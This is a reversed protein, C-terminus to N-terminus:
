LKAPARYRSRPLAVLPPADAHPKNSQPDAGSGMIAAVSRNRLIQNPTLSIGANHARAVIQFVQISDAGLDFLNDDVSLQELRLVDLCIELLIKEGPSPARSTPPADTTRTAQPRPLRNRDIKGNPTKPLAELSVFLSPVMYAPLTAGLFGRLEASAPAQGEAVFYGVLRKEGAPDNEAVVACQRVAPHKGLALEVESTEIRFGRVKVQTDLRGLFEISGDMRSRVLDGTAYLRSEGSPDFPNRPFKESTLGPQKWYGRALGDGGIYLEGPIGIPVLNMAQDLILLQTNAIPKGITLPGAGPAVRSVSSWVTTETPGYMNWLSGVRPLLQDALDRPLAEGGCLAKLSPDGKWGAEILLRWTAPTAQILSVRADEIRKVLRHGDAIEESSVMEIRAGVMLPLWLELVAIDFSVTTLALITDSSTIGPTEAMSRLFNMVSRHRIEVGKPKGTSGSTFILYALDDPTSLNEPPNAVPNAILDQIEALSVVAARGQPLRGAMEPQALVVLPESDDLVATVRDIPYRPDLPIYAGGAKLVALLSVLMELSRDLCVVVREGPRVGLSRLRAALANAQRDLMAHTLTKGDFAVAVGDPNEKVREALAEHLCADGFDADAKGLWFRRLDEREWPRLMSLAAIPQKPDSAMSQLLTVYHELWREITARDFLDNNYDCDITLGESSEVINLFLDFNVHRKPVSDVSVDLGNFDLRSGLRELNFQVEVLPLRSPDRRLGLTKVLSGFTYRQHESADLMSGRVQKLFSGVALQSPVSSRIPLLNVCHGVLREGDLLSQGASPIGVVIDDQGSFRSLLIKFGALLTAFLTCGQTAGFRRIAHAVQANVQQRATDGSFSKLAGRPHDNPLDLPAVPIKFQEAWWTEIEAHEASGLWRKEQEAYEKFSKVKPLEPKTRSIDANYLCRLDEILLNTSWGDCVMHHSTFILTHDEDHFRVLACRVLPGQILDFPTEANEALFDKFRAQAQTPHDCSFDLLALEFPIKRAIRAVSQVPDFTERLADHREIVKELSRGLADRDLKGQFRVSFAENFACSAEDSLRASLWIEQQAETIPAFDDLIPRAPVPIRAPLSRSPEPLVGGRQMEDVSDRFAEIVAQIDAETHATTLYCPFGEQIHVGKERLHYYILSGFRQEPPFSFYFVSGFHELRTPVERAEFEQNIAHVFRSTKETLAQQLRPGEAKLHLLVARVAALTLPHRVFTGAFFTVGVEPVSDDGYRWFGGDLADMFARSGALVGIPMGGGVVKGYTVLDARIGLLGQAGAPHVRFGTVVEDFILATGSAETIARIEKLFEVPQLAPHRSQVPEVLVAALESAHTRIYELSDPTGYPLVTVNAVSEPPIGPAIPMTASGDGRKVAKVLVEDFTGHYAGAFLVIKKRGTVTRSIRLAAMVAESGTNCFTAREAGTLECVLAAVEGALPTQPGIEFGNSIQDHLAKVVFDPAHGFMIPGFGNLIDIYRNGDIDWLYAGKSRVTIIPYVMEKWLLRFGAAVRPDALVTRREQTQSKSGATKATYRQILANLYESQKPTLDGLTGRQVPKFPGHAKFEEAPAAKPEAPKPLSLTSEIVGVRPDPATSVPAIVAPVPMAAEVGRLADLQRAMLSSMAQLQERLIAEMSSTPPALVATIPQRPQDPIAAVAPAPKPSVEAKTAIPEEFNKVAANEDIYQSLAVISSQRDLLQRFTLKIGFQAQLSQAAQTLFLSDFGLELFNTSYDDESINLGSLEEFMMSVSHCIRDIRPNATEVTPKTDMMITENSPDSQSIPIQVVIAPPIHSSPVPPDIWFRKREFPYTPLSVRTVEPPTMETWKLSLGELWLRGISTSLVHFDSTSSESPRLTPLAASSPKARRNRSALTRLTSGPGVELYIVSELSDLKAFADSFRVTQRVHRAWYSPDTAEDPKIWDRTVCSVYPIKPSHFEISRLAETFPEIIPEMMSSHFAHTSGLRRCAIGRQDLEAQLRGLASDPGSVVTLQDSNVAALSIDDVLFPQIDEEGLRVSLMGGSPLDRMMRSRTAILHIASELTFVGALCAAAVEGVSHGIMAAPILGLRMWLRGLAYEISFIASQALSTDNLDIPSAPDGFDNPYIATRLDINLYPLFQKACHDIDDRFERNAQYLQRGMDVHQAGQGPFMFVVPPLQSPAAMTILRNPDNSEIAQITENVDDAVVMRRHKFARRGAQLTHAVSDLDIEPHEKLHELLNATAKELASPTRASILILRPRKEAPRITVAPAEEIIVHANTGGVGFSSVGARRPADGRKWPKLTTNVYFPSNELDIKPNPSKFHIAPPLYEHEILQVANILGTVGSAIDLHGINMKATGLACFQKADTRSRFARTLAQFEVPDGLPTATGHAELYGITNPEVEALALAMAIVQAQGEIGPATYGVKVAGDNNVASGRIIAHIHDGDAIADELRKLLVVASGSGFVTGQADADFTRCHGDKSGMGGEQHLYGRKQPFTISVGGALAMDCQFALLSQCAQTVAVLSTSCGCQITYSPGKLNLKYSVRTALFDANTGLLTPYQGIQYANTYEEIFAHDACLNRLFYTNASCGAFVSILGEYTQPDYGADELAEWCNELFVRHQPDIREAEKPLIGFFDADFLDANELIARARIYNPDKALESANAVELEHIDFRSISEVGDRINRRLQEPNIAGPFRGAMGVIAIGNINESAARHIM